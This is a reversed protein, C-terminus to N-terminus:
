DSRTPVLALPPVNISDVHQGILTSHIEGVQCRLDRNTGKKSFVSEFQQHITPKSSSFAGRRGSGEEIPLDRPDRSWRRRM